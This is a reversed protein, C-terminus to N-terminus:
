KMVTANNQTLTLSNAGAKLNVQQGWFLPQKNYLASIMLYYTGAPVGSFTAKGNADAHIAAAADANLTSMMKQCDPTRQGCATGFVKYASTGPSVSVGARSIAATFSERLLVYPHGALPNQAGAQSPFGSLISLVANGTPSGPMSLRANATGAAASSGAPLTTASAAPPVAGSPVDGPSLVALNCTANLPAFTFDDNDNQGIIRRGEVLYPGSGPNLTNNSQLVMTLAHDPADVKVVAQRGDAIVTYPYARAADPGCGLIASEPYFGVSFGTSAAYTGNMRMGAPTPPGTQGGLMGELLNKETGVVGPGAGKSSLNPRPCTRTVRLYSYITAQKGSSYDYGDHVGEPVLGNVTVSGTGTLTDGNASLVINAPTSVITLVARNNVIAITYAHSDPRMDACSLAVSAESFELRWQGDGIFVGSMQPGTVEKGVVGPAVSSLLGNVNPMLSDMLGNGLCVSSPRGAAVCRRMAHTAPDEAPQAAPAGVAYPNGQEARKIAADQQDQIKKNFAQAKAVEQSSPQKCTPLLKKLAGRTEYTYKMLGNPLITDPHGVMCTSTDSTDHINCNEIEIREGNCVYTVNTQITQASAIAASFLSAMAAMVALAMAAPRPPIKM